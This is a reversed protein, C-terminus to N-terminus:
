PPLISRIILDKNSPLNTDHTANMYFEQTVHKSNNTVKQQTTVMRVVMKYQWVQAYEQFQQLGMIWYILGAWECEDKYM